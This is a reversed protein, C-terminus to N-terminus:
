PPTIPFHPLLHKRFHEVMEEPTLLGSDVLLEILGRPLDEDEARDYYLLAGVLDEIRNLAHERAKRLEEDTPLAEAM